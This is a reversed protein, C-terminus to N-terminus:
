LFSASSDPSLPNPWTISAGTTFANFAAEKSLTGDVGLGIGITVMHQWFAPDTESVPVNNTLSPRLDRKWYYM